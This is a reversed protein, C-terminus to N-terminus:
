GPPTLSLATITALAAGSVSSVILSVEKVQKWKDSITRNSVRDKIETVAKNLIEM